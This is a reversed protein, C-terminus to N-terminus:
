YELQVIDGERAYHRGRVFAPRIEVAIGMSGQQRCPLGEKRSLGAGSGFGPRGRSGDGLECDSLDPFRSLTVRWRM